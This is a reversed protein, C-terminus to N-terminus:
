GSRMGVIDTRQSNESIQTKRKSTLEALFKREEVTLTVIFKKM